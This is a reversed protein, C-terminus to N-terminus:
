VQKVLLIHFSLKSFDRECRGCGGETREPVRGPEADKGPKLQLARRGRGLASGLDALARGGAAVVQAREGLVPEDFLRFCRVTALAAPPRADDADVEGGACVLVLLELRRRGQCPGRQELQGVAVDALVELVLAAERRRPALCGREQLCRDDRRRRLQGLERVRDL